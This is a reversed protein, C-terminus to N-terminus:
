PKSNPTPAPNAPPPVTAPPTVAGNAPANTAGTGAAAPPTEILASNLADFDPKSLLFTGTKGDLTANWLEEPTNLGVTLKGSKKDALTFHIVVNPKELGQTAASTAGAWRVARLNALTNVLSNAAGQSVTGDGKALKWKKDKDREFALTPQGARTIEFSVM